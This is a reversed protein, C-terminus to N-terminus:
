KILNKLKLNEKGCDINEKSNLYLEALLEAVIRGIKKVRKLFFTLYKWAKM